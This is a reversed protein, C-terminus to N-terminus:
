IELGNFRKEEKSLRNDTPSVFWHNKTLYGGGDHGPFGDLELVLSQDGHYGVVKGKYTKIDFIGFSFKVKDGIKYDSM